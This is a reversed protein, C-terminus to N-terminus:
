QPEVGRERLQDPTCTMLIETEGDNLSRRTVHLVKAKRWPGIVFKIERHALTLPGLYELLECEQDSLQRIPVLRTSTLGPVSM